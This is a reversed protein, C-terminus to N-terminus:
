AGGTMRSSPRGRGSDPAAQRGGSLGLHVVDFPNALRGLGEDARQGRRCTGSASRGRQAVRQEGEVRLAALFSVM